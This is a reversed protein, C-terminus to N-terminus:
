LETAYKASIYWGAHVGGTVAVLTVTRGKAPWPYSRPPTCPAAFGATTAVRRSVVKGGSLAYVNVPGAPVRCRYAPVVDRTFAAWVKGYGVTTSANIRLQGAARKMVERDYVTGNYRFVGAARGDALSDVTAHVSEFIAHGGRFGRGADYKSDAIPAYSVQIVAGQGAKRRREYEAWTVVRAGTHVDLYVGYKEIAVAAVQNLNLGPSTPDPIPENSQLRITRGSPLKAGCTAHGIARSAAWATCDVPGTQGGQKLQSAFPVVYSPCQVTM